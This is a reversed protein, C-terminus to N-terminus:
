PGVLRSIDNQRGKPRKRGNKWPKETSSCVDLIDDAIQFGLGIKMGYDSLIQLQSQEGQRRHGRFASSGSVNKSNQKHTYIGTNRYQRCFKRSELRGNPRCDYWGARRSACLTSIMKVATEPSSVKEALIEFALTLLADGTLIATAEDFAKHCTARGRRFDDDDMAPLDDHVLSYAHVMEIAAAALEADRNAKGAILECCWLVLAARVRKGPAHLTYDMAEKLGSEIDDQEDLFQQLIKDVFQRKRGLEIDFDSNIENSSMM